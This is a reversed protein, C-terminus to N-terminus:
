PIKANPSKLKSRSLNIWICIWSNQLRIYEENNEKVVLGVRTVSVVAVSIHDDCASVLVPFKMILM